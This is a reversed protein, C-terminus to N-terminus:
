DGRESDTAEIRDLARLARHKQEETLEVDGYRVDEFLRTLVEVDDPDLGAAIAQATVQRPTTTRPKGDTVLTAMEHWAAMVADTPTANSEIGEPAQDGSRSTEGPADATDGAGDKAEDGDAGSESESRSRVWSRVGLVLASGVGLVLLVALIATPPPTTPTSASTEGGGGEGVFPVIPASEPVGGGPFLILLALAFVALAVVQAVAAPIRALLERLASLLADRRTVTVYVLLALLLLMALTGLVRLLAFTVAVLPGLWEPREFGGDAAGTGDGTGQGIGGGTGEGVSGDDQILVPSPLAAAALALALVAILAVAATGATRRYVTPEHSRDRM